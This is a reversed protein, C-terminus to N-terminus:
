TSPQATGRMLVFCTTADRWRAIVHVESLVAAARLDLVSVAAAGAGQELARVATGGGAALQLRGHREAEQWGIEERFTVAAVGVAYLVGPESPPSRIWRPARGPSVLAEARVSPLRREPDGVLVLRMGQAEVTALLRVSDIPPDLAEERVREGMATLSVGMGAQFAADWGIRVRRAARLAERGNAVAASEAVAATRWAPAFGVGVAGLPSPTALFWSPYAYAAPAVTPDGAPASARCGTGWALSGLLAATTM